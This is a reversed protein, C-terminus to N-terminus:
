LENEAYHSMTNALRQLNAFISPRCALSVRNATNQTWHCILYFQKPPLALFFSLFNCWCYPVPCYIHTRTALFLAVGRGTGVGGGSRGCVGGRAGVRVPSAAGCPAWRDGPKREARNVGKLCTRTYCYIARCRSDPFSGSPRYIFSRVLWRGARPGLLAM